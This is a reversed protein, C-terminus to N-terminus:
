RPPIALKFSVDRARNDLDEDAIFHVLNFMVDQKDKDQDSNKEKAPIRLVLGLRRLEVIQRM